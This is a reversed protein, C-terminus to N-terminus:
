PLFERTINRPVDSTVLVDDEIRIGGYPVLEDILKWNFCSSHESSRMKELLAPIFYVGPEITVIFGPELSRTARYTPMEEHPRTPLGQRSRLYEGEDHTAVGISHGLGHPLFTRLLGDKVARTFDGNVKLIELSELIAAIGRYARYQISAMNAGPVVNGCVQQQFSNLRAHLERFVPHVVAGLTTRSVDSAYHRCVAGADVLLVKGGKQTRRGEYHLTAAKEDVAFIPSFSLERESVGVAGLYALLADFESGGELFSSAAARHGLVAMRNAEVVCEVEYPTKLGRWWNLQAILMESNTVMGDAAAFRTESGVFRARTLAGLKKWAEQSDGAIEHEFCDAWWEEPPLPKESWFSDPACRVLLPKKGPALRLFHGPGKQPCLWGFHRDSRFPALEDDQFYVFSEGSGLVLNEIGLEDLTEAIRQLSIELHAKFLEKLDAM